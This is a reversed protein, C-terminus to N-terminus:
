LILHQVSILAYSLHLNKIKWAAGSTTVSISYPLRLQSKKRYANQHKPLLNHGTFHTMLQTQAVKEILKSMFSLNSIPCYNKYETDLNPGKILPRVVAIKWEDLYQRTTLSVSNKDNDRYTHGQIEDSILHQM